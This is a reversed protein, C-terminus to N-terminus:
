LIYSANNVKKNRCAPWSFIRNDMYVKSCATLM